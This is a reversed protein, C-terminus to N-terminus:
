TARSVGVCRIGFQGDDTVYHLWYAERDLRVELLTAHLLGVLSRAVGYYHRWETRPSM